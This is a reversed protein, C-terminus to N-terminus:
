HFGEQRCTLVVCLYLLNLLRYSLDHNFFIYLVYGTLPIELCQKNIIWIVLDTSINEKKLNVKSMMCMVVYM